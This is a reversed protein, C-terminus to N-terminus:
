NQSYFHLVESLLSKMRTVYDLDRHWCSWPSSNRELVVDQVCKRNRSTMEEYTFHNSTSAWWAYMNWVSTLFAYLKVEMVMCAINCPIVYMCINLELTLPWWHWVVNSFKADSSVYKAPTMNMAELTFV